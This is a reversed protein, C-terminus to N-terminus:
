PEFDACVRFGINADHITPEPVQRNPIRATTADYYFGGGRLVHENPALSSRAWEFVNGCMDDLGFPSRSAPHSGVEDPGFALPAKGYTQDIDADDRELHNGHPYDRDDAGRAAREWELESCLRAGPVRGTSALWGVYAEADEPSVGSVPFRLWDQVARRDRAEYHLNEGVRATYVHTTPQLSLQWTRGPLEKLEIAGTLGQVRPTRRAQEEPPLSRLFAIWDAYTVEHKAILFPGTSTEHLPPTNFFSRRTEEEAVCGFLFRGSPVYVFGEPVRGEEPLAVTVGIREGPAVLLPYRTPVHGPLALTLLYSGPALERGPIPTAGLEDLEGLRLARHADEDFRGISVRAGPPRSAVSVEAPASLEQRRTGDRDYLALRQMLEDRLERHHERDALTARAHLMDGVLGEVRTDRADLLM